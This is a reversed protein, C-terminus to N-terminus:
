NVRGRVCLLRRVGLHLARSVCEGEAVALPVPRMVAKEPNNTEEERSRKSEGETDRGQETRDRARPRPASDGEAGRREGGRGCSYIYTYFRHRDWTNVLCNKKQNILNMLM